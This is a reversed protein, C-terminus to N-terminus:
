KKNKEIVARIIQRPKILKAGLLAVQFLDAAIVSLVFGSLGWGMVITIAFGSYCLIAAGISGYLITKEDNRAILAFQFVLNIPLFLSVGVLVLLQPSIGYSAWFKAFFPVYFSGVLGVTAGAAFLIMLLALLGIRWLRMNGTAADKILAPGLKQALVGGLMTGMQQIIGITGFAGAVATGYSAAVLSRSGYTISTSSLGAIYLLFGGKGSPEYLTSRSASSSPHNFKRSWRSTMEFVIWTAVIEAGIVYHWSFYLATPLSLCLPFLGRLFSFMLLMRVSGIARVLSAMLLLAGIAISLGGVLVITLYSLSQLQEPLVFKAAAAVAVLAIIRVALLSIARRMHSRIGAMDSMIYMHPYLKTTSEILGFSVLVSILTAIGVSSIYLGFQEPVFIMALSISKIFSLSSAAVMLVAFITEDGLARGFRQLPFGM